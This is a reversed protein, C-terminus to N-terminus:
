IVHLLKTIHVKAQQSNFIYLLGFWKEGPVLLSVKPLIEAQTWVELQSCSTNKFLDGWVRGFRHFCVWVTVGATTGSMQINWYLTGAPGLHKKLIFCHQSHQVGQQGSRSSLPNFISQAIVYECKAQIYYLLSKDIAFTQFTVWGASYAPM